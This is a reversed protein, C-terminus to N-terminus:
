DALKLKKLYASYAAKVASPSPAVKASDMLPTIFGDMAKDIQKFLNPNTKSLAM